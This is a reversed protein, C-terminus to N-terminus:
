DPTPCSATRRVQDIVPGALLKRDINALAYSTAEDMTMAAGEGRLERARQEGLAAAVLHGTERLAALVFNDNIDAPARESPSAGQPMRSAYRFIAYAAGQLVGAVEPRNEAFARACLAFCPAAQLPTVYWRWVYMTRATLTLTLQWDRLRGAVLCATLLGSSIEEGPKGSLHLSENLLDRARQPDHEAVALALSNLSMVIAGPM